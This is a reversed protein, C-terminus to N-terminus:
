MWNQQHKSFMESDCKSTNVNSLASQHSFSTHSAWLLRPPLRASRPANPVITYRLSSLWSYSFCFVLFVSCCIKRCLLQTLMFPWSHLHQTGVSPKKGRCETAASMLFLSKDELFSSLLLSECFFALAQLPCTDLVPSICPGLSCCAREHERLASGPLLWISLCSWFHGSCAFPNLNEERYQPHQLLPRPTAVFITPAVSSAM